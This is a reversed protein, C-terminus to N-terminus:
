RVASDSKRLTQILQQLDEPVPSDWTCWQGTEPHNLSLSRAHLAQRSFSQLCNRVEPSAGPSLRARGGYLPDGVLPHRIHTMHVRIQHTRGTELNVELLSHAPFREVVRYHTVAPKGREVVAMKLRSRPHRGIPADLTGGGAIAGEVVCLYCRKMSRKQLQRVLSTQAALTKAVVLLGSTDKDIRHVIGARPVSGTEPAHHLVANLLTGDPHGPAPHVILGAPKDVVLIHEDEHVVGLAIPQAHWREGPDSDAKLVLVQGSQLRDKARIKKGDVRLCGARIWLQLRSRSYESFLGAAIVDSREGDLHDPVRAELDIM